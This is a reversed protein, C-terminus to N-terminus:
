YMNINHIVKLMFNIKLTDLQLIAPANVMSINATAATISLKFDLGDISAPPIMFIPKPFIFESVLDPLFIKGSGTSIEPPFPDPGTPQGLYIIRILPVGTGGCYNHPLMPTVSYLSINDQKQFAERSDSNAFINNGSAPASIAQEKTTNDSTFELTGGFDKNVLIDYVM